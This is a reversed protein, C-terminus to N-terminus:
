MFDDELDQVSSYRSAIDKNSEMNETQAGRM